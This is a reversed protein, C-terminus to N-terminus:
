IILEKDDEVHSYFLGHRPKGLNPFFFLILFFFFILEEINNYPLEGEGCFMAVQVDIKLSVM